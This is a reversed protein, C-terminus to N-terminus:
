PMLNPIFPLANALGEVDDVHCALSCFRAVGVALCCSRSARSRSESAFTVNSVYMIYSRCCLASLLTYYESLRLATFDCWGRGRGSYSSPVFFGQVLNSSSVWTIGM